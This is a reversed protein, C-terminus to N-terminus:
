AGGYTDVAIVAWDERSTGTETTNFACKQIGVTTGSTVVLQNGRDDTEEQWSYMPLEKSARGYAIRAAGQGLLLNRVVKQGGTVAASFRVMNPHAVVAVDVGMPSKYVYSIFDLLQSDKMGGQAKAKEIDYFRGSTNANMAQLTVYDALLVYTKRGGIILPPMLRNLTTNSAPQVAKLIAADIIDLSLTDAATITSQGARGNGYVIRGSSPARLDNGDSAVSGDIDRASSTSKTTDITLYNGQGLAGSLKALFREDYYQPWQQTSLRDKVRERFEYPVLGDAFKGDDIVSVRDQNIQLKDSFLSLRREKGKVPNDGATPIIYLPGEMDYDVEYGSAKGQSNTTTLEDMQIIVAGSAAPDSAKKMLGSQYFFSFQNTSKSLNASWFKRASPHNVSLTM